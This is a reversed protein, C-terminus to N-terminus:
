SSTAFSSMYQLNKRIYKNGKPQMFPGESTGRPSKFGQLASFLIVDDRPHPFHAWTSSIMASAKPQM